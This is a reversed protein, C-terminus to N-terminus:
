RALGAADTTARRDKRSFHKGRSRGPQRLKWLTAAAPTDGGGSGRCTMMLRTCRERSIDADGRAAGGRTRGDGSRQRSVENFAVSRQVPGTKTSGPWRIEAARGDGRRCWARLRAVASCGGASGGGISGREGRGEEEKSMEGGTMRERSCTRGRCRGRCGARNVAAPLVRRAGSLLGARAHHLVVEDADDLHTSGGCGGEKRGAAREERRRKRLSNSFDV